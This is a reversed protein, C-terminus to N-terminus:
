MRRKDRKNSAMNITGDEHIKTMINKGVIDQDLEFIRPTAHTTWDEYFKTLVDLPIKASNSLPEPRNFFMTTLPRPLKGRLTVNITWDEHLIAMVIARIVDRLLELTTGTIELLRM